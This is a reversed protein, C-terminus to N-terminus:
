FENVEEIFNIKGPLEVRAGAILNHQKKYQYIFNSRAKRENVAQTEAKFEDMIYKGFLMVPGSYSYKKM